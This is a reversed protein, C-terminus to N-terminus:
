FHGLKPTLKYPGEEHLLIHEVYLCSNLCATNRGYFSNALFLLLAFGADVRKKEVKHPQTQVSVDGLFRYM